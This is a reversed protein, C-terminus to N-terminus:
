ARQRGLLGSPKLSLMTLFLVFDIALAWQNGLYLSTLNEAVGLLLGGIAAGEISGM